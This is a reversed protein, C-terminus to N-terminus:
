TTMMHFIAKTRTHFLIVSVLIETFIIHGDLQFTVGKNAFGSKNNKYDVKQFDSLPYSIGMGLGVYPKLKVKTEDDKDNTDQAKSTFALLMLLGATFFTLTQKM